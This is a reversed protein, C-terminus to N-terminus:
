RPHSHAANRSLQREETLLRISLADASENAIAPTAHMASPNLLELLALMARARWLDNPFADKIINLQAQADSVTALEGYMAEIAHLVAAPFESHRSPLRDIRGLRTIVGQLAADNRAPPPASSPRPANSRAAAARASPPPPPLSQPRAKPPPESRFQPPLPPPLSPPPPAPPPHSSRRRTSEPPTLSKTERAAPQARISEREPPASHSSGNVPPAERRGSKPEESNRRSRRAPNDSRPRREQSETTARAGRHRGAAGGAGLELPQIVHQVVVDSWTRSLSVKEIIAELSMVDLLSEATFPENRKGAELAFVVLERLQVEELDEALREFGVAGVVQAESLLDNHIAGYIIESLRELALGFDDGDRRELNWFRDSVLFEWLEKAGLVRVWEDADFLGVIASRSTTGEDLALTLDESASAVSKKAAIKEHTGTTEVLLRVRLEDDSALSELISEFSFHDFFDDASRWGNELTRALLESVFRDAKAALRSSYRESETSTAM